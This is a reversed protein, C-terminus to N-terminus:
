EVLAVFSGYSPLGTYYCTLKDNVQLITEVSFEPQKENLLKEMKGIKAEITSWNVDTHTM